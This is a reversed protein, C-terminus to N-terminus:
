DFNLDRADLVDFQDDFRPLGKMDIWRFDNKNEIRINDSLKRKVSPIVGFKKKGNEDTYYGFEEFEKVGEGRTKAPIGLMDEDAIECLAMAIVLDYKTREERQYERLQELLDTFFINHCYDRTYEKIKGDGYDIVNPTTTTGILTQERLKQVPDFGSGASPRAIMPRKMLLHWQKRERLYHVFGIKTYEINIKASYYMALKLSEEYDDRVDLSRGIYKAVYVNSTQQFYQGDVIRKKVLMALSSRDKSTTSDLIGQDISDIGAVYLDPYVSTRDKGHYPHEIISINGNPNSAWEVGIINGGATRKWELYGIEPKLINEGGFEIDAWQKAINRQHFINTGSKKFVEEVTFPFEQIHKDYIEPDDKKRERIKEEKKTVWDNNNVGTREWGAGGHLYHVPIFVGHKKGVQRSFDTVALVDYADPRTFIDKAQDSSVSGGTGIMFVRCKLISGVKWSGESAGICSKLDGKGSSWDGCNHTITGDSLIFLHDDKKRSAITFGHYDGVDLEEISTIDPKKFDVRVGYFRDQDSREIFDEVKINVFKEDGYKDFYTLHLKHAGNTIYSKGFTQNIKYMVAKGSTTKGVKVPNFHRNMVMDGVKIDEIKKLTKDAMLVKTGPALCEEMLQADPRGGRTVGPNDGYIVQQISSMPGEERKTGDINVEYGSKVMTKTDVLRALALTPHVKDIALLMRKIKKFAEDSHGSHSASVINHSDPKLYYNKALISLIMYTNHTVVYDSALYLSDEAEVSICTAHEKYGLDEVDTITVWNRFSESRKGPSADIRDLKRKLTFIPSGTHLRVRFTISGHRKDKGLITKIGLSRSLRIVDEALSKSVSTFEIDGHDSCYGDTDMLGRLLDLRQNKSGYFYEKPIFKSFSGKGNLGLVKCAETLGSKKKFFIRDIEKTGNNPMRKNHSFDTKEQYGEVEIIRNLIEEEGEVVVLRTGYKDFSGDGLLAGLTYPHVKFKKEEYDAGSGIPLYFQLDGRDNRLNNKIDSTTINLMKGAYNRVTWLHDNSCRVKRGDQLKVSFMNLKGQPYIGTIKTPKGDSGYVFDGEKLSGNLVDGTPTKVLESDALSKGFGRAGMLMFKLGESHAEEILKFIYDHQYSFYGFNVEFDTTPEGWEDLKAVHFPTFNLFWYYDGTIRMGQYEFGYICRKLQEAYWELNEASDLAVPPPNRGELFKPHLPPGYVYSDIGLASPRDTGGGRRRWEKIRRLEEQASCKEPDPLWLESLNDVNDKTLKVNAM